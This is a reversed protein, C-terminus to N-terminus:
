ETHSPYSLILLTGYIKLSVSEYLTVALYFLFGIIGLADNSKLYCKQHFQIDQARNKEM